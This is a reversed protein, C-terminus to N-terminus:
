IIRRSHKEQNINTWDEISLFYGQQIQLRSGLYRSGLGNAKSNYGLM